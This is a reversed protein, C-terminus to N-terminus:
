IDDLEVFEEEKLIREWRDFARQKLALELIERIISDYTEGKHGLSKLMEKTEQSVAITTRM